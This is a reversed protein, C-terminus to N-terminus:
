KPGGQKRTFSYMRHKMIHSIDFSGYGALMGGQVEGNTMQLVLSSWKVPELKGHFKRVYNMDVIPRRLLNFHHRVMVAVIGNLWKKRKYEQVFWSM